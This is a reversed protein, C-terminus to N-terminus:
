RELARHGLIGSARGTRDEAIASDATNHEHQPLVCLREHRHSRAHHDAAVVHQRDTGTCKARPQSDLVEPPELANSVSSSLRRAATPYISWERTTPPTCVPM